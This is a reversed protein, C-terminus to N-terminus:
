TGFTGTGKIILAVLLPGFTFSIAAASSVIGRLVTPTIEGIYTFSITAFAGIAFGSYGSNTM